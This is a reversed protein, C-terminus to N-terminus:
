NGMEVRQRTGNCGVFVSVLAICLVWPRPPYKELCHGIVNPRKTQWQVNLYCNWFVSFSSELIQKRIAMELNLMRYARNLNNNRTPVVKCKAVNFSVQWWKTMEGLDTGSVNYEALWLFSADDVFKLIESRLGKVLDNICLSLSM